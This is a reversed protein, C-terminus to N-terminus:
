SIKKSKSTAHQSIEGAIRYINTVLPVNGKGNILAEFVKVFVEQALQCAEFENDCIKLMYNYIRTRHPEIIDEFSSICGNEAAKLLQRQHDNM